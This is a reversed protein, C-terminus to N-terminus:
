IFKDNPKNEPNTTTTNQKSFDTTHTVTGTTDTSGTRITVAHIQEPNEVTLKAIFISIAGAVICYELPRELYAPVDTYMARFALSGAGLSGGIYQVRRFFAPSKM